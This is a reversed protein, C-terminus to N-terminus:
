DNVARTNGLHLGARVDVIFPYRDEATTMGQQFVKAMETPPIGERVEWVQKGNVFAALHVDEEPFKAPMIQSMRLLALKKADSTCGKIHMKNIHGPQHTRTGLPIRRGSFM